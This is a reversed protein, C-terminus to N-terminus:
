PGKETKFEWVWDSQGEAKGGCAKLRRKVQEWETDAMISWPPASSTVIINPPNFVATGNKVEVQIDYRDLYHLLDVFCLTGKAHQKEYEDLIVCDQNLYGDFWKGNKCIFYSWGQQSAYGTKGVGTAGYLWIANPYDSRPEPEQLIREMERLYGRYGSCVDVYDPHRMLKKYSWGERLHDVALQLKSRKDEKEHLDKNHLIESFSKPEGNKKLGRIIYEHNAAKKGGAKKIWAGGGSRTEELCDEGTDAESKIVKLGSFFNDRFWDYSKNGQEKKITWYCQLHYASECELAIYLVSCYPELKRIANLYKHNVGWITCIFSKNGGM